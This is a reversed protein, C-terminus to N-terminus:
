IRLVEAAPALVSIGMIRDVVAAAGQVVALPAVLLEEAETGTRLMRIDVLM